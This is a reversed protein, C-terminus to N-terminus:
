RVLTGIREYRIGRWAGNDDADRSFFIMSVRGIVNEIPVYGFSLVRSDTSNGRNDGLVFLHGAPVTYVGTNDYESVNGCDLTDYGAGNSLTERWRKATEPGGCFDGALDPMRERQVKMDNIYLEGEKMQILDGPLGAVRKIYDSDHHRFVIVDGRAPVSGFIRGSFLPPSLPVSYRSYGYAFKSTFVYDGVLLTPSMSRSPISFPQFLFTRVLLALGASFIQWGIAYVAITRWFGFREVRSLMMLTVVLTWIGCVGNVCDFLTSLGPPEAGGLLLRWGLAITLVVAFGLIIPMLGWAFVARVADNSAAGGMRRAIWGTFAAVVYIGFAAGISGAVVCGLLNQWDFIESGAGNATMMNAVAAATGGIVILPGLMYRPREAVIREITPRPSLWFSTLPSPRQADADDALDSM